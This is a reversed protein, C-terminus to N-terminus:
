TNHQEVKCVQTGNFYLPPHQRSTNKHSFLMEVAQKKPDPNSHMKWQHAWKQINILDINLDRATFYPDKVIDFLM